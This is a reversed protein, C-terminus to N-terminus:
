LFYPFQTPPNFVTFKTHFFFLNILFKWYFNNCWSGGCCLFFSLQIFSGTAVYVIQVSNFLNRFFFISFFNSYEIKKCINGGSEVHTERQALKLIWNKNKTLMNTKEFKQHAGAKLVHSLWFSTSEYFTLFWKILIDLHANM